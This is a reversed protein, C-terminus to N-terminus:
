GCRRWRTWRTSSSCRCCSTSTTRRSSARWSMGHWRRGGPRARSPRRTRPPCRPRRSRRRRGEARKSRKDKDKAEKKPRPPSQVGCLQCSELKNPNLLTCTPCAWEKDSHEPTSTSAAKSSRDPKEKEEPPPPTRSAASVSPLDEASRRLPEGKSQALPSLSSETPPQLEKLPPMNYVRGKQSRDSFANGGRVGHRGLSKLLEDTGASGIGKMVEIAVGSHEHMCAYLFQAPVFLKPFRSVLMQFEDMGMRARGLRRAIGEVEDKLSGVDPASSQLLVNSFRPDTSGGRRRVRASSMATYQSLDVTLASRMAMLLEHKDLSGDGDLDFMRYAFQVTGDFSTGGFKSLGYVFERFGVEGSDDLDFIKM